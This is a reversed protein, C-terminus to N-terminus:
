PKRHTRLFRRWVGLERIWSLEYVFEHVEYARKTEDWVQRKETEFHQDTGLPVAPPLATAHPDHHRMSDQYAISNGVRSVRRQEGTGSLVGHGSL